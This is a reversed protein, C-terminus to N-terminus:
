RNRSELAYRGDAASRALEGSNRLQELASVLERGDGSGLAEVLDRFTKPGDELAARVSDFLKELFSRLSFRELDLDDSASRIPAHPM